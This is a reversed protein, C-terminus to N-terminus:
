QISGAARSIQFLKEEKAPCISTYACWSCHYGPKPDFAGSRIGAAIEAIKEEARALQDSSRETSVTTNGELNYFTLREASLGMSRAAMAYITLQMSKKATPEDKPSGTKYDEIAVGKASVEDIRDIRGVVKIGGIEFEFPRETALVVPAPQGARTEVFATLQRVGQETYLRLQHLDDIKASRIADHFSELVVDLGLRKGAKIAEYYARMVTHIAAGFQTAASLEGPIKWEREIKYRLPCQDYSDISSASLTALSRVNDPPLTLWTGVPTLAAAAAQIDLRVETLERSLLLGKLTKEELLERVYATPKGGARFPKGYIALSDKARTLAVYFLRREEQSHLEKASPASDIKSKSLAQPFEFLPESYSVPFSSSNARVISVHDFELGKAAHVSMLQIGDSSSDQEPMNVKGGCSIFCEFYESFAELTKEQAIPKKPWEGVFDRFVRLPPSDPLGFGKVILDLAARADLKAAKQRIRTVTEVVKKGNPINASQLVAEVTTGRAANALAFKLVRPDISFMRLAAVRFFSVSDEPAVLARVIALLDRVAPAGLVDVGKVSLPIGREACETILEVRHNHMRYLIAFDSWGAGTEKKRKEIADVVTKAETISDPTVTIEPSFKPLPKREAIAQLERGSILPKRHPWENRSIVAYATQLVSPVSRFNQDLTVTRTKPFRRRFEEFAESTAGRFRYIAQDPDGVAFINEADGALLQALEIQGFNSDQFEDILIFKTREQEQMRIGHDRLLEVAALIQHGYSGWGNKGLINEVYEYVSAVENCRALVEDRSLEKAGSKSVRPLPLKPDSELRCIYAKYDDVSVLDDHCRTIFEILDKIFQGPSAAKTFDKLPLEAVHLNLYIRLDLDDVVNFKRGHRSSLDACYSHFTRAQLKSSDFESGLYQQVRTRLNEAANETYTVALIQEPPVQHTQILSAIRRALVTTKGSGAGAVVLMPGHLHEIAQCQEPTPPKRM